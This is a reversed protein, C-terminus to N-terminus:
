GGILDAWRVVSISGTEVNLIVRDGYNDIAITREFTVYRYPYGESLALGEVRVSHQGLAVVLPIGGNHLRKEGDIWADFDCTPHWPKPTCFIDFGTLELWAPPKDWQVEPHAREIHDFLMEALAWM